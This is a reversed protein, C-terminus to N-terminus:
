LANGALNEAKQKKEAGGDFSLALSIRRRFAPEHFIRGKGVPKAAEPGAEGGTELARKEQAM